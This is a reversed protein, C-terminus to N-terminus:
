YSVYKGPLTQLYAPRSSPKSDCPDGMFRLRGQMAEFTLYTISSVCMASNWVPATSMALSSLREANPAYRPPQNKKCVLVTSLAAPRAVCVQISAIYTRLNRSRKSFLSLKLSLVGYPATMLFRRCAPVSEISRMQFIVHTLSHIDFRTALVNTCLTLSPNSLRKLNRNPSAM